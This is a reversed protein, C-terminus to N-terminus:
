STGDETDRTGTNSARLIRRRNAATRFLVAVLLTMVLWDAVDGRFLFIMWLCFFLCLGVLYVASTRRIRYWSIVHVIARSIRNRAWLLGASLSISIWDIVDGSLLYVLWACFLIIYITAAVVITLVLAEMFFSVALKFVSDTLAKGDRIAKFTFSHPGRSRSVRELLRCVFGEWRRGVCTIPPGDWLRGACTRVRHWLAFIAFGSLFFAGIAVAVTWIYYNRRETLTRSSPPPHMRGNNEVLNDLAMAHVFVGPLGKHDYIPVKYIDSAGAFSTGYVIYKGAIM